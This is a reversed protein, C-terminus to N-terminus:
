LNTKKVFTRNETYKNVMGKFTLIYNINLPLLHSAFDM